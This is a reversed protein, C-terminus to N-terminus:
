KKRLHGPSYQLLPTYFQNCRWYIQTTVFCVIGVLVAVIGEIIWINTIVGGHLLGAPFNVMTHFLIALFYLGWHGRGTAALWVLVSAAIHFPIVILREIGSVLFLWPATEVLQAAGSGIGPFLAALAEMGSRNIIVSCVINGIMSLTCFIIAEAGGHGIGYTLAGGLTNHRRKLAFFALLRGTEEFLGAALGGYLGLAWWRTQVFGGIVPQSLLLADFGGRLLLVAIFVAAGVICPVVGSHYKRRVYGLLAIPASLAVLGSVAMFVISLAPVTPLM